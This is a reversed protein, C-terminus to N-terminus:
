RDDRPTTRVRDSGEQGEASVRGVSTKGTVRVSPSSLQEVSSKKKWEFHLVLSTDLSLSLSVLISRDIM